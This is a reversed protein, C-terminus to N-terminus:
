CMKGNLVSNTRESNFRWDSKTAIVLYVHIYCQYLCVFNLRAWNIIRNTGANCIDVMWFHSENFSYLPVPNSNRLFM